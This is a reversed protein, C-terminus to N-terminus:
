EFWGAVEEMEKILAERIEPKHQLEHISFTTDAYYPLILHDMEKELRPAARDLGEEAILVFALLAAPGDPKNDQNYGFMSLLLPGTIFSNRLIRKAGWHYLGYLSGKPRVDYNDFYYHFQRDILHGAIHKVHFDNDMWGVLSLRPDVTFDSPSLIANIETGLHILNTQVGAPVLSNNGPYEQGTRELLLTVITTCSIYRNNQSKEDNGWLNFGHAESNIVKAMDSLKREWNEPKRKYRYVEVYSTFKHNFYTSLPVLRLGNEYSEYVAPYRKGDQEMELYIAMHPGLNEQETFFTFTGESKNHQNILFIDGAELKLGKFVVRGDERYYASMEPLASWREYPWKSERSPKIKLAKHPGDIRSQQVMELDDPLSLQKWVNRTILYDGQKLVLRTFANKLDQDQSWDKTLSRIHQGLSILQDERTFIQLNQYTNILTLTEDSQGSALMAQLLRTKMVFRWHELRFKLELLDSRTAKTREFNLYAKKVEIVKYVGAKGSVIADKIVAALDRAAASFEYHYDEVQRPYDQELILAYNHTSCAGLSLSLALVFFLGKKM